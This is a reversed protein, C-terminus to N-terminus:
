CAPLGLLDGWIITGITLGYMHGVTELSFVLERKHARSAGHFSTLDYPDLITLCADATM